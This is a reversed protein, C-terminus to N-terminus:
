LPISEEALQAVVEGIQLAGVKRAGDSQTCERKRGIGERRPTERLGEPQDPVLPSILVMRPLRSQIPVRSATSWGLEGAIRLAAEPRDDLRPHAVARREVIREFKEQAAAHRQRM